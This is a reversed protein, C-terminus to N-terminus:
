FFLDSFCYAKNGYFRDDNDILGNQLEMIILHRTVKLLPM